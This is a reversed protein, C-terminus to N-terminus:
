KNCPLNEYMSGQLSGRLSTHFFLIKVLTKQQYRLSISLQNKQIKMIKLQHFLEM